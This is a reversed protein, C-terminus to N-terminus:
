LHVSHQLSLRKRFTSSTRRAGWICGSRISHNQAEQEPLFQLGVSPHLTLFIYQCGSKVYSLHVEMKEAHHSYDELNRKEGECLHIAHTSLSASFCATFWTSTM